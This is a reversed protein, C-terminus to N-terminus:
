RSRSRARREARVERVAENIDRQLQEQDALANRDRIRNVTMQFLLKRVAREVLESRAGTRVASGLHERIAKDTERSVTVNWRVASTGM